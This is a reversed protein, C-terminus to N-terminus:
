VCQRNTYMKERQCRSLPVHVCVYMSAQKHVYDETDAVTSPSCEVPISSACRDTQARFQGHPRDAPKPLSCKVPISSPLALQARRTQMLTCECACAGFVCPCVLARVCVYVCTCECARVCCVRVCVYVCTCECACASFVCTCVLARVCVYVCTRTCVRVCLYVLMRACLVCTCVLACACVHVHM